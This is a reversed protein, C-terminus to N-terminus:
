TRDSGRLAIERLRPPLLDLRDHKKAIEILLTDPVSQMMDHRLRAEELENDAAHHEDKQGLAEIATLARASTSIRDVATLAMESDKTGDMIERARKRGAELDAVMADHQSQELRRFRKPWRRVAENILGADRPNDQCSLGQLKGRGTVNEGEM